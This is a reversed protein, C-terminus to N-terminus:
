RPVEGDACVITSVSLNNDWGASKEIAKWQAVTGAFSLRALSTCLSFADTGIHIVGVPLALETLRECESFAFSDILKVNEHIVCSTVSLDVAGRLLLYPNTTNGLYSGNQYETSQLRDCYTFVSRGVETVSDPISLVTLSKCFYFAGDGLSQLGEPLNISTLGYCDSFADEGIRKVNEGLTVTKLSRCNYFAFDGVETVGDGIVVETLNFCPEFAYWWGVHTVSDGIVLSKLRTCELFVGHAVVKAADHTAFSEVGTDNLKILALYPNSENGLYCGGEYQNYSLSDCGEFANRGVNELGGPLAPAALSSCQSFAGGGINTVSDPITVRSLGLCGRFVMDELSEVGEPIVMETLARCGYFASSELLRLSDPLSLSELASCHSFARVGISKLGRPLTVTKLGECYEFASEALVKTDSHVECAALDENKTDLLVLYPNKTNGAYLANDYEAFLRSDCAYFAGAGVREVSDPLSLAELGTCSSFAGGGISLLGEPLALGSLGVCSSFAGDGISLLGAPLAVRTLATCGSFALADISTVSDGMTVGTLTDCYEFAAYGIGTVPVDRYLSGIVIENATATGLGIVAYSGDALLEYELGETGQLFGCVCRGAEDLDHAQKETAKGCDCVQFHQGQDYRYQYDHRHVLTTWIFLGIGALAICLVASFIWVKKKM